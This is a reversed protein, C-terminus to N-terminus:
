KTQLLDTQAKQNNTVEKIIQPSKALGQRFAQSIALEVSAGIM